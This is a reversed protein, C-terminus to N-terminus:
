AGQSLRGTRVMFELRASADEDDVIPATCILDEIRRMEVACQEMVNYFGEWVSSLTKMDTVM